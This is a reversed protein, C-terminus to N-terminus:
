CRPASALTRASSSRRWSISATGCARHDVPLELRRRLHRGARHHAPHHQRGPASIRRGGHRRDDQFGSSTSSESSCRCRGRSLAGGPGRSDPDLLRHLHVIFYRMQANDVTQQAKAKWAAYATAYNPYIGVIDLKDLDKFETGDLETLEGGFVLHLLQQEPYRHRVHSSGEFFGRRSPRRSRRILSCRGFKVRVRQPPRAGSRHLTAM